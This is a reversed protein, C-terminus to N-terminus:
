GIAPVVYNIILDLGQTSLEASQGAANRWETTVVIVTELAPSVWIFQGGFGWAFFDDTRVTRSLWWLWGYSQDALPPETSWFPWAPKTSEEIWRPHVIPVPGASGQQLWLWGLKAMDRPRLDLGAGGNARGDTSLIEWRARHIGLGPFLKDEALRPIPRGTASELAVSLLHVAASNYTFKTGPTSDLPRDLLFRVPEGSLIWDNYDSGTLEDWTFGAGMTLLHQITIARKADDLADDFESLLEGIPTDVRLDGELVAIGALTSVVSKTVSRVDNLSDAHNGNFYEEVVLAGRRVVLLCLLRPLSRAHDVARDVLVPDLNRSEPSAVQWEASLDLREPRPAAPEGSCAIAAVCLIAGLRRIM